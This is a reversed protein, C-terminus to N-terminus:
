YFSADVYNLNKLCNKALLLVMRKQKRSLRIDVKQSNSLCLIVSVITKYLTSIFDFSEESVGKECLGGKLTVM